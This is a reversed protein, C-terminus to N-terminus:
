VAQERGTYKWVAIHTSGARTSTQNSSDCWRSQYELVASSASFDLALEPMQPTQSYWVGPLVRQGRPNELRELSSLICSETLLDEDGYAENYSTAAIFDFSINQM